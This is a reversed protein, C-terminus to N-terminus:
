AHTSRRAIAQEWLLVAQKFQELSWCVAGDGRLVISRQDPSLSGGDVKLEIELYEHVRSNLLLLDLVVPNGKAQPFHLFWKGTGHAQLRKPTRRGYGKGVLWRECDAQLTAEDVNAKEAPQNTKCLEVPAKEEPTEEVQGFIHPNMKQLEPSCMDKLQTLNMLEVKRGSSCFAM